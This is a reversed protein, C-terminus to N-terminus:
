PLGKRSSLTFGRVKASTGELPFCLQTKSPSNQRCVTVSVSLIWTLLLGKEIQLLVNDKRRKSFRKKGRSLATERLEDQNIVM